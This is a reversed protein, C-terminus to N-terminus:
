LLGAVTSLGPVTTTSRGDGSGGLLSGVLPVSSVTNAVGTDQVLTSVVPVQSVLGQAAPLVQAVTSTVPAVVSQVTSVVPAVADQIASTIGSTDTPPAGSGAVGTTGGGSSGTTKTPNPNVIPKVATGSGSSSGSSGSSSGRGSTSYVTPKSFWDASGSDSSTSHRPTYGTEAAAVGNAPQLPAASLDTISDAAPTLDLSVPSSLGSLQTTGGEDAGTATLVATAPDLAAAILGVGTLSAGVALAGLAAKRGTTRPKAHTGM